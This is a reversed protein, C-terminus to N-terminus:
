GSHETPKRLDRKSSSDSKVDCERPTRPRSPTRLLGIVAAVMVVLLLYRLPQINVVYISLSFSVIVVLLAWRKTAPAISRHEQWDRIMPGFLRNGLLWQHFRESSRAFCWAALLLFPTTPLIPLVIGITGLIVAVWGVIILFIRM